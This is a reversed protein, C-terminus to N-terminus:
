RIQYPAKERWSVVVMLSKKADKLNFGEEFVPGGVMEFHHSVVWDYLSLAPLGTGLLTLTRLCIPSVYEKPFFM